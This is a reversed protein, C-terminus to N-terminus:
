KGHSRKRRAAAGLIGLGAMMLAYTEPEPVASTLLTVNSVGSFEFMTGDADQLYGGFTDPTGPIWPANAVQFVMMETFLASFPLVMDGGAISNAFELASANPTVGDYFASTDQYYFSEALRPTFNVGGGSFILSVSQMGWGVFHCGLGCTPTTSGDIGFDLVFTGSNSGGDSYNGTVRYNELAAMAAGHPILLCAAVAAASSIRQQFNM